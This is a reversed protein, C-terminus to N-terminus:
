LAIPYAIASAILGIVVLVVIVAMIARALRSDAFV